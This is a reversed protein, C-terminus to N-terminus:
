CHCTRTCRRLFLRHLLRMLLLFTCLHNYAFSCTLRTKASASRATAGSPSTATLRQLAAGRLYPITTPHAQRWRNWALPGQRLREVLPLEHAM